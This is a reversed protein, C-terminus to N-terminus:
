INQIYPSSKWGNKWNKLNTSVTPTSLGCVGGTCQEKNCTSGMTGM